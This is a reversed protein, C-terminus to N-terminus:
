AIVPKGNLIKDYDYYTRNRPRILRRATGVLYNKINKFASRDPFGKDRAQYGIYGAAAIGLAPLLVKAWTPMGQEEDEVGGFPLLVAAEKRFSVLVDAIKEAAEPATGAKVLADAAGARYSELIDKM